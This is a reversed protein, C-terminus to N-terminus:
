LPYITRMKLEHIIRGKELVNWGDWNRHKRDLMKVPCYVGYSVTGKMRRSRRCFFQLTEVFEPDPKARKPWVRRKGFLEEKHDMLCLMSSAGVM